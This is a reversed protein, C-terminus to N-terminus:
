VFKKVAESLLAFDQTKVVYDDAGMRRAKVADIADVSGTIIIIKPHERGFIERIRHCVEFGDMDPMVTDVIVLDPKETGAKEVGERAKDTTVTEYGEQEFLTKLVTLVTPSDDIILIKKPM